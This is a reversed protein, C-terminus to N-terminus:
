SNRLTRACYWDPEDITSGNSFWISGGENTLRVFEYNLQSAIEKARNECGIECFLNCETGLDIVNGYDDVSSYTYIQNM